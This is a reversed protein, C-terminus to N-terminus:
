KLMSGIRTKTNKRGTVIINNIDEFNLDEMMLVIISKGLSDAYEIQLNCNHSRCYPVTLCSVILNSNQIADALQSTLPYDLNEEKQEKFVKLGLQTLQTELQKIKNNVAWSYSLFVDISDTM